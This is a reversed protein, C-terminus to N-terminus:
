SGRSHTRSDRAAVCMSWHNKGAAGVLMAVHGQESDSAIWSVNVHSFPPSAPWVDSSNGEISELLTRSQMGDLANIRHGYRDGQWFFCVQVGVGNVDIASLEAPTEHTASM